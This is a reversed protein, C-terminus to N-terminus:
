ETGDTTDYVDRRRNEYPGIHLTLDIEDLTKIVENNKYLKRNLIKEVMPMLQEIFYKYTIFHLSTTFTINMEAIYSLNLGQIRYFNIEKKLYQELNKPFVSIRYMIKSKVDISIDNNFVIKKKCVHKYLQFEKDYYNVNNKIHKKM